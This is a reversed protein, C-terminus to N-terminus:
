QLQVTGGGTVTLGSLISQYDLYVYTVISSSNVTFKQKEISVLSGAIDYNSFTFIIYANGNGADLISWRETKRAGDTCSSDGTVTSSDGVKGTTPLPTPTNQLTCITGGSYETELGIGNSDYKTDASSVSTTGNSTITNTQHVNKVPIGNFFSDGTYIRSLNMTATEGTSYVLNLDAEYDTTPLPLINYENTNVAVTSSDNSGCGSLGMVIGAVVLISLINKFYM